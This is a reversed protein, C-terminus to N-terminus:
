TKYYKSKPENIDKIDIGTNEALKKTKLTLEEIKALAKVIIVINPTRENNGKFPKIEIYKRFLESKSTFAILLNIWLQNMPNIRLVRRCIESSRDLLNVIDILLGNIYTNIVSSGDYDIGYDRKLLFIWLNPDKILQNVRKDTLALDIIETITKNILLEYQNEKSSM